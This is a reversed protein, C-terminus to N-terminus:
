GFFIAFLTSLLVHIAHPEMPKTVEKRHTHVGTGPAGRM